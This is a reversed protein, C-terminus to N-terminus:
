QVVKILLLFKKVVLSEDALNWFIVFLVASAVNFYREHPNTPCKLIFYM